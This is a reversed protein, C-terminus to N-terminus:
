ILYVLFILTLPPTFLYSLKTFLNATLIFQIRNVVQVETSEIVYPISSFVQHPPQGTLEEKYHTEKSIITEEKILGLEQHFAILFLFVFAWIFTIALWLYIIKRSYLRLM